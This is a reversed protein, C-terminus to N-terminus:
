KMSYKAILAKAKAVLGAGDLGKANAKSIWEDRVQGGVAKWRDTEASSLASVHNGSQQILAKARVDGDDMSQGFKGALEITSHENFVKQIDPPLSDWKAKNMVMAFPVTYLALGDAMETHNKVIQQVKFVPAVEYPISTGDLVGKSLAEGVSTIPMGVPTAGLKALLDGVVRSGGRIKLGKIDAVSTVPEKTHLLGPGHTHLTLLHVDRFEDMGNQQVYEWLAKSAGTADKTMFPLEFVETKPFLGPTYSLVTWAIDVVGDKAQAFLEPPKGGLSMAPFVQIKVRGQTATEIQKIWPTISKSLSTGQPPEFTQLRLVIDAAHAQGAGSFTAAIAVLAACLTSRDLKM